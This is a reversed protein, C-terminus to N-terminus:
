TERVTIDSRDGTSNREKYSAFDVTAMACVGGGAERYEDIIRLLEM